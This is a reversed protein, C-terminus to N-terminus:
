SVIARAKVLARGIWKLDGRLVRWAYEPSNQLRWCAADWFRTPQAKISNVSIFLELEGLAISGERVHLQLHHRRFAAVASGPAKAFRKGRVALRYFFDVDAVHRYREDFGGIEAFDARRFIAAAQTMALKGGRLLRELRAPSAAKLTFLFKGESDILDNDGYSVSANEREGHAVLRSYSLPYVTDDSNLYTIWESDLRRLGENVARYMNGPPVYITEVDWRRCIDLTGDQSGSDAVIARVIIDRQNRLSCLTWDLTAASNLTPVVVGIHTGPMSAFEEM